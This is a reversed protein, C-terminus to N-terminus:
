PTIIKAILDLNSIRIALANKNYRALVADGLTELWEPHQEKPLGLNSKLINLRRRRCTTAVEPKLRDLLSPDAGSQTNARRGTPNEGLLTDGDPIFDAIFPDTFQQSLPHAIRMPSASPITYGIFTQNDVTTTYAM